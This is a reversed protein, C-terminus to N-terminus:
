NKVNNIKVAVPDSCYPCNGFLVNFSQRTTTISRLWDGLCVSHFAKSCTTNDCTYDTGSGSKAGLEDDVPLCQAYCIGCEVQQDNKPVDTPRPLQTELLCALNELYPKDKTEPLSRPNNADICLMIFCDNGINIQRHSISRSPQKPDIVCLSKDIDDLTSWFEQLKELYEHFQQVVDKLRSNISWQLDFNYPVDASISPPSKPYTKDLQIEMFHLRGKEDLIRFSLFTLDGGLRVLHEWGVEEIESYVSRYFTSSKALERCRAQETHDMKSKALLYSQRRQYFSPVTGSVIKLILLVWRGGHILYIVAVTKVVTTEQLLGNILEYFILISLLKVNIVHSMELVNIKSLSSNM